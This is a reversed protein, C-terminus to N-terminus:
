SPRFKGPERRSLTDGLERWSWVRNEELLVNSSIFLSILRRYREAIDPDTVARREEPGELQLDSMLLFDAGPRYLLYGDPDVLAIM